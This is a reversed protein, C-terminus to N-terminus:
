ILDKRRLADGLTYRVSACIAQAQSDYLGVRFVRSDEHETYNRIIGLVIWKGALENVSLDLWMIGM